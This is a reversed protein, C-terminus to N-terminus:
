AAARTATRRRRRWREVLHFYVRKALSPLYSVVLLDLARDGHRASLALYPRARRPLHRRLHRSQGGYAIMPVAAARCLRTVLQDVKARHRKYYRRECAHVRAVRLLGRQLEVSRRGGEPVRTTSVQGPHYRLKYTPNDIFAVTGVRCIRLAFELDHFMGFYPQQLGTTALVERRFMMSNTFVVTDYLYAEYIRGRYESREVWHPAGAVRAALRLM